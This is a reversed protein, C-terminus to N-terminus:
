RLDETMGEEDAVAAGIWNSGPVDAAFYFKLGPLTVTSTDIDVVEGSGETLLAVHVVPATFLLLM